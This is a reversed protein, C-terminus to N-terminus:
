HSFFCLGYELYLSVRWGAYLFAALAASSAILDACFFNSDVSADLMFFSEFDNIRINVASAFGLTLTPGNTPSFPFITVSATSIDSYNFSYKVETKV